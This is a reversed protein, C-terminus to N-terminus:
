ARVVNSENAIGEIIAKKVQEPQEIWSYHGAKEIFILKSKNYSRKLRLPISEGLPDQRGHIILVDGPYKTKDNSLGIDNEKIDKEILSSTEFNFDDDSIIQSVSLSKARDYFYGPIMARVIETIAHNKNAWNRAKEEWFNYNLIDVSSLRCWINDFFYNEYSNDFGSSDLLVISSVSEPFYEAYMSALFGGFSFGLINWKNFNLEKRILEFDKITEIVTIKNKSKDDVVTKGTGRQDVLICAVSDALLNCLSIYRNSNDGPGGGIILLPERAGFFRYYVDVGDRTTKSYQIEENGTM